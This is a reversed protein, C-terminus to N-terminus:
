EAASIRVSCGHDFSVAIVGGVLAREEGPHARRDGDHREAEQYLFEIQEQLDRRLRGPHAGGPPWSTALMAPSSSM